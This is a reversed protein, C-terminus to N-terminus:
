KNDRKWKFHLLRNFFIKVKEIFSTKKMVVLSQEEKEEAKQEENKNYDLWNEEKYLNVKEQFKIENQAYISKLKHKKEEDEEWYKLNLISLIILANRSLQIEEVPINNIIINSTGKSEKLLLIIEKPLKSKYEEGLIDLIRNVEAYATKLAIDM